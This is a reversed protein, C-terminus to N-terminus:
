WGSPCGTCTGCLWCGCARGSGCNCCTRGRRRMIFLSTGRGLRPLFEARRRVALIVRSRLGPGFRLGGAGCARCSNWGACCGCYRGAGCALGSGCDCGAGCGRSSNWGAGCGWYRGAGCALGSGCDCGAGCGRGSDCGACSDVGFSGVPLGAARGLRVNKRSGGSCFWFFLVQTGWKKAAEDRFLSKM